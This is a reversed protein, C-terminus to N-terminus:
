KLEDFSCPIIIDEANIKRLFEEETIEKLRNYDHRCLVTLAEILKNQLEINKNDTDECKIDNNQDFVITRWAEWDTKQSKSEISEYGRNLKESIFSYSKGSQLYADLQLMEAQTWKRPAISTDPNKLFEDWDVRYLKKEIANVSKNIFLKAIEPSTKGDEYKAKYLKLLDEKTWQSSAM